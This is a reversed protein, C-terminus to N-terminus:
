CCGRSSPFVELNRRRMERAWATPSRAKLRALVFDDFLLRRAEGAQGPGAGSVGKAKMESEFEEMGESSIGEATELTPEEADTRRRKAEVGLVGLGESEGRQL